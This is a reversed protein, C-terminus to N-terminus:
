SPDARLPGRIKPQSKGKEEGYQLGHREGLPLFFDEIEDRIEDLLVAVARTVFFQRLPQVQCRERGHVLVNLRQFRAVVQPPQKVLAARQLDRSISAPAARLDAAGIRAAQFEAPLASDRGARRHLRDLSLVRQLEASKVPLPSVNASSTEPSDM